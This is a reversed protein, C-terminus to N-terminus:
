HCQTAVGGTVGGKLYYAAVYGQKYTNGLQRVWIDNGEINEGHTWCYADYGNNATVYDVQQSHTTPLQRVRADHWPTVRYPALAPAALAPSITAGAAALTLAAVTLTKSIRM